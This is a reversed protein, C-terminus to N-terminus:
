APRLAKAIAVKQVESTGGYICIDYQANAKTILLIAITLLFINKM